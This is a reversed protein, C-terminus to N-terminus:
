GDTGAMRKVGIQACVSEKRGIINGSEASSVQEIGMSHRDLPHTLKSPFNLHRQWRMWQMANRM